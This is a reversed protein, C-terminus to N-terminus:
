CRQGASFALSNLRNSAIPSQDRPANFPMYRRTHDGRKEAARLKEGAAGSIGSCNVLRYVKTAGVGEVKIGIFLSKLQLCGLVDWHAHGRLAGVFRSRDNMEGFCRFNATDCMNTPPVCGPTSIRSSKKASPGGRGVGKDDRGVVFFGSGPSPSQPPTSLDRFCIAPTSAAKPYERWTRDGFGCKGAWNEALDQWRPNFKEILAIKKEWRWRKVQKERAIAVQVDQYSEYHVLRHCQYKQTFGEITDYKHQYIRREFFGTVGVYLTGSRSSLIYVWFKYHFGNRMSVLSYCEPLKKFLVGQMLTASSVNDPDRWEAETAVAGEDDTSIVFRPHTGPCLLIRVASQSAGTTPPRAIPHIPKQSYHM